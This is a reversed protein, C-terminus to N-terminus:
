SVLWPVARPSPEDLAVHGKPGYIHRIAWLRPRFLCWGLGQQPIKLPVVDGDAAKIVAKAMEMPNFEKDALIDIIGQRALEEVVLRAENTRRISFLGM